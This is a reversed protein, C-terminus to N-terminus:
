DIVAMMNTITCFSTVLFSARKYDIIWICATPILPQTIGIQHQEPPYFCDSAKLKVDLILAHYWSTFASYPRSACM